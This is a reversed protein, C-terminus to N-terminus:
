KRACRLPRASNKSGWNRAYGAGFDIWWVQNGDQETSTYYGTGSTDFHGITDKSNYVVKLEEKAPLYWDSHGDQTLDNCYVAAVHDQFGSTDSDSDLAAVGSTNNEGTIDSNYGTIVWDNEGNNWSLSSRGGTCTVGDWSMGADCRTVYMKVTGDPTQGAYVTGDACVTGPVPSGTCDGSTTVNWVDAAGGVSLTASSTDGGVASTTLRIQIYSNNDITGSTTWDILVTSCSSDSCIRLEPSGEGSVNANVTCGLGTIQLINSTVLTSTIQNVLDTFDFTDPDADSCAAVSVASWSAGDCLELSNGTPNYRVAGERDSDCALGTSIGIIAEGGVHLPAKPATQKIGVNAADDYEIMRQWNSGDCVLLYGAGAIEPGGSRVFRGTTSCADGPQIEQARADEPVLFLTTLATFLLVIFRSINSM